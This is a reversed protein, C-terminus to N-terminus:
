NEGGGLNEDIMITPTILIAIRRRYPSDPSISVIVTRRVRLKRCKHLASKQAGAGPIHGLPQVDAHASFVLTSPNAVVSASSVLATIHQGSNTEGLKGM